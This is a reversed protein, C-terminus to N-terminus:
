QQTRDLFFVRFQITSCCLSFSRIALNFRTFFSIHLIGFSIKNPTKGNSVVEKPYIQNNPRLIKIQGRFLRRSALLTRSLGLILWFGFQCLFNLLTTNYLLQINSYYVLIHQRLGTGLSFRTFKQLQPYFYFFHDWMKEELTMWNKEYFPLFNCLICM